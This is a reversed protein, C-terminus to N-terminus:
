PAQEQPLDVPQHNYEGSVHQNWDADRTYILQGEALGSVAVDLRFLEEDYNYSGSGTMEFGESFACDQLTFAEGEDVAEFSLTGGLPCGVDTPTVTDWFYYEPLYYIEDDASALAQLPDDFEAASRPALPVFADTVVGECVTSKNGPTQDDVLFDTVLDDVCSFGWAYIIHPGGTMTVLYGDALHSYVAEANSYPTAPDSTGNLVLTPVGEAALPQPRVEDEQADPWFVCPLDGYFISAFRPLGADLGDGAEMYAAAREAETGSFYAYDQCEVAYYVADSYSPDLIPRETEPDVV